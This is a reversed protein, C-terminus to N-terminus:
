NVSCLLFPSFGVGNFKRNCCCLGFLLRINPVASFKGEFVFCFAVCLGAFAVDPAGAQWFLSWGAVKKHSFSVTGYCMAIPSSLSCTISGPVCYFPSSLLYPHLELLLPRREAKSHNKKKKFLSCFLFGLVLLLLFIVVVGFDIIWLFQEALLPKPSRILFVCLKPFRASKLILSPATIKPWAMTDEDLQRRSVGWSLCGKVGGSMWLESRGQVAMGSRCNGESFPMERGRAWSAM